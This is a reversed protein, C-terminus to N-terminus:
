WALNQFIQFVTALLYREFLGNVREEAITCISSGAISPAIVMAVRSFQIVQDENDVTVQLTKVARDGTVAVDDVFQFADEFTSAPIHDFHHPYGNPIFQQTFIGATFQDLQHVFGNVAVVLGKM